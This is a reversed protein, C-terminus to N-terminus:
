DSLAKQLSKVRDNVLKITSAKDKKKGLREALEADGIIDRIWTAFDNKEKNVHYAFTQNKM